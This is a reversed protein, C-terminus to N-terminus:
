FVGVGMPIHNLTKIKSKAKKDEISIRYINTKLSTDYSLEYGIKNNREEIEDNLISLNLKMKCGPTLDSNFKATQYRKNLKNLLIKKLNHNSDITDYDNDFSQNILYKNKNWNHILPQYQNFSPYKTYDKAM